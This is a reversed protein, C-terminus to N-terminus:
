RTTYNLLNMVFYELHFLDRYSNGMSIFISNTIRTLEEKKVISSKEMFYEYLYMILEYKNINCSTLDYLEKRIDNVKTIDNKKILGIIKKYRLELPDVMNYNKNQKILQLTAFIMNLNYKYKRILKNLKEPNMTIKEKICIKNIYEYLEEKQHIMSVRIFFFFGFMLRPINSISNCMFIFKCQNYSKECINKIVNYMNKNIFQINRLVIVKFSNTIVNLTRSVDKLFECIINYDYDYNDNFYIEYHYKSCMIDITKHSNGITYEFKKQSKNYVEKGFINNLIMLAMTYKGCGMGGYIFLNQFSDVSAINEVKNVIDLNLKSDQFQRPRYKEFLLM